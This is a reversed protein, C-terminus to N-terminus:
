GPKEAVKWIIRNKRSNGLQLHNNIKKGLVKCTFQTYRPQTPNFEPFNHSGTFCKINVDCAAICFILIYEPNSAPVFIDTGTPHKKGM